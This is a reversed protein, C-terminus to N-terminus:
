RRPFGNVRISKAPTGEDKFHVKGKLRFVRGPLNAKVKITLNWVKNAPVQTEIGGDMLKLMAGAREEHPPRIVVEVFDEPVSLKQIEVREVAIEENLDVPWLHFTHENAQTRPFSRFSHFTKDMKVRPKIQAVVQIQFNQKEDDTHFLLNGGYSGEELGPGYAGKIEYYIGGEDMKREISLVELGAPKVPDVRKVEWEKRVHCRVITSWEKREMTTMNGLEVVPPVLSYAATVKAEMTLLMSSMRPDTTEVRIDGTRMGVAGSADFNVVLKGKAGAPVQIAPKLNQEIDRQLPVDKGDILLKLGHCKCSTQINKIKQDKGSKNNFEFTGELILKQKEVHEGFDISSIKFWSGEPVWRKRDVPYAGPKGDAQKGDGVSPRPKDASASKVTEKAPSGGQTQAEVCTSLSASALFCFSLYSATNM